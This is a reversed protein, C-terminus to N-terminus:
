KPRARAHRGEHDSCASVSVHQAAERTRLHLRSRQLAVRQCRVEGDLRGLKNSPASSHDRPPQSYRLGDAAFDSSSQHPTHARALHADILPASPIIHALATTEASVAIYIRRHRAVPAPCSYIDEFGTNHPPAAPTSRHVARTVILTHTKRSWLDAAATYVGRHSTRLAHTHPDAPIISICVLTVGSSRLMM